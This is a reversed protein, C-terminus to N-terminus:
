LRRLRQKKSKDNLSDIGKKICQAFISMAKTENGVLRPLMGLHLASRFLKQGRGSPQRVIAPVQGSKSIEKGRVDVFQGVGPSSPPSTTSSTGHARGNSRRSRGEVPAIADIASFGVQLAADRQNLDEELLALKYVQLESWGVPDDKFPRQEIAQDLSELAKAARKNHHYADILSWVSDYDGNAIELLAKLLQSQGGKVDRDLRDLLKNAEDGLNHQSMIQILPPLQRFIRGHHSWHLVINSYHTRGIVEASSGNVWCCGTSETLDLFNNPWTPARRPNPLMNGCITSDRQLQKQFAYDWSKVYLTRWHNVVNEMSVAKDVESMAENFFSLERFVLAVGM